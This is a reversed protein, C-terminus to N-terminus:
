LRRLRKVSLPRRALPTVRVLSLLITIIIIIIIIIVIIVIVIVIVTVTVTVAVAVVFVFFMIIINISSRYCIKFFWLFTYIANVIRPLYQINM